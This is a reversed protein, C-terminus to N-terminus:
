QLVEELWKDADLDVGRARTGRWTRVATNDKISIRLTADGNSFEHQATLIRDQLSVIRYEEEHLLQLFPAGYAPATDVWAGKETCTMERINCEIKYTNQEPSPWRTGGAKRWSGEARISEGSQSINKKVTVISSLRNCSVASMVLAAVLLFRTKM